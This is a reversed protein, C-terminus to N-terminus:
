AGASTLVHWAAVARLRSTTQRPLLSALATPSIPAAPRASSRLAACRQRGDATPHRTHFSTDSSTSAARPSTPPIPVPNRVAAQSVPGADPPPQQGDEAPPDEIAEGQVVFM